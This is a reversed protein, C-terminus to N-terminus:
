KNQPKFWDLSTSYDKKRQPSTTQIKTKIKTFEEKYEEIFWLRFPEPKQHIFKDQFLCRYYYSLDEYRGTTNKPKIYENLIHEFLVFGNNSFIKAHKEKIIITNRNVASTDSLNLPEPEPQELFNAFLDKIDLLRNSINFYKLSTLRSYLPEKINFDTENSKLLSDNVKLIYMLNGSGFGKGKSYEYRFENKMKPVAEYKTGYSFFSEILKLLNIIENKAFQNLENEILYNRLTEIDFIPENSLILFTVKEKLEIAFILRMRFYKVEDITKLIINRNM